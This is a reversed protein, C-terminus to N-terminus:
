PRRGTFGALYSASIPIARATSGARSRWRPENRLCRQSPYSRGAGSTQTGQVRVEAPGLETDEDVPRLRQGGVEEDVQQVHARLPRLRGLALVHVLSSVALCALDPPRCAGDIEHEAEVPLEAGDRLDTRRGIRLLPEHVVEHGDPVLDHVEITEVEIGVPSCAGRGRPVALALDCSGAAARWAVEPRPRVKAEARRPVSSTTGGHSSPAPDPPASELRPVARAVRRRDLPAGQTTTKLRLSPSSDVGARPCTRHPPPSASAAPPSRGRRRPPRRRGLLSEGYISARGPWVLRPTDPGPARDEHHHFPLSRLPPRRQRQGRPGEAFPRANTACSRPRSTFREPPVQAHPALEEALAQPDTCSPRHSVRAASRPAPSTRAEDANQPPSTTGAAGPTSGRPAQGHSVTVALHDPVDQPAAMAVLGGASRPSDRGPSPDADSGPRRSPDM